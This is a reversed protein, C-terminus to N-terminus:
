HTDLQVCDHRGSDLCDQVANHQRMASVVWFLIGGRGGGRRDAGRCERPEQFARLELQPEPRNDNATM